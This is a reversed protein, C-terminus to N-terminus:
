RRCTGELTITVVSHVDDEPFVYVPFDDWDYTDCVVIMHTAGLKQGTDFWEKIDALSAAM